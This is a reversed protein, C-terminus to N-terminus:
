RREAYLLALEPLDGPEFRLAFDHLLDRLTHEDGEILDYHIEAILEEVADLPATQLAALESGEIDLKLLDISDLAYRNVLTGISVGEVLLGPRRGAHRLASSAISEGPNPYFTVPADRDSIAAHLTTVGELSAVNRVLKRYTAPDAEVAVIRADPFRRHFYLTALGVNAGLDLITRPRGQPAYEEHLLVHHAVALEGESSIMVEHGDPRLAVVVPRTVRVGCLRSLAVWLHFAALRFKDTPRQGMRASAAADLIWHLRAREVLRRGQM